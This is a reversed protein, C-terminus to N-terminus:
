GTLVQVLKAAFAAPDGRQGYEGGLFGAHHSPFEVFEAGLRDAIAAASRAAMTGASEVGAALVIRTQAARLGDFDFEFANSSGLNQGLLPDDRTGDDAAPLGFVAPGPDPIVYDPAFEGRQGTMTIFKAMAPGIGQQSYTQQIDEIVAQVQERDPLVTYNPPEHAVLTHVLGPHQQVLALGNVAGGSSGFLDVQGAGLDTIVRRLDDAHEFPTPETKKHTRPSEGTGRPDYTIVPRDTFFSALTQFGLSDMPSGVIMLPSVEAPWGLNGRIGYQLRAGRASITVLEPEAAQETTM